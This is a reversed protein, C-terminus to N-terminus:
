LFGAGRLGWRTRVPVIRTIRFSRTFCRLIQVWLEEGLSACPNQFSSGKDCLVLIERLLDFRRLVESQVAIFSRAISALLPNALDLCSRLAFGEVLVIVESVDEAILPLSHNAAACHIIPTARSHM